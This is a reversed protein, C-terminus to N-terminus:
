LRVKIVQILMSKQFLDDKKDLPIEIIIICLDSSDDSLVKCDNVIISHIVKNYFEIPCKIIYKTNKKM